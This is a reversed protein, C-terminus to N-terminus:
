QQCKIKGGTSKILLQIVEDITALDKDIKILWLYKHTEDKISVQKM